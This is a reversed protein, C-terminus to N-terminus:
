VSVCVYVGFEHQQKPFIGRSPFVSFFVKLFSFVLVLLTYARVSLVISYFQNWKRYEISNLKKTFFEIDNYTNQSSTQEFFNHQNITKGDLILLNFSVFHPKTKKMKEAAAPSANLSNLDLNFRTKKPSTLDSRSNTFRAKSFPLNSSYTILDIVM